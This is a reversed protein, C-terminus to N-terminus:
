ATPQLNSKTRSLYLVAVLLLAVGIVQELLNLSAMLGGISMQGREVLTFRYFGVVRGRVLRDILVDEGHRLLRSVLPWIVVAGGLWVFGVDRTHLYERVLVVAIVVHLVLALAALLNVALCVV